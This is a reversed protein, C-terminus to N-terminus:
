CTPSKTARHHQAVTWQRVHNFYGKGTLPRFFNVQRRLINAGFKMNHKGKVWSLNDAFQWTNQPVQYPGYDGTYELQSNFGGILAGGGLQPDPQGLANVNANVIGFSASLAENQFPPTYGFDTHIFGVRFDNILNPTFTHTEAIVAAWPKTPNTGSGFGAPLDPLRSTTTLNDNGYSYRFFSSDKKGSSGTAAFISTTSPRRASVLPPTTRSFPTATPIPTPM